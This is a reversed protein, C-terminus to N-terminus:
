GDTLPSSLGWQHLKVKDYAMSSSFLMLIHEISYFIFFDVKYLM